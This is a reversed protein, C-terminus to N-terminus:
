GYVRKGLTGSRGSRCRELFGSPTTSLLALIADVSRKKTTQAPGGRGHAARGLPRASRRRLLGKIPDPGLPASPVFPCFRRSLAGHVNGPPRGVSVPEGGAASRPGPTQSAVPAAGRRELSSLIDLVVPSFLLLGVVLPRAGFSYWLTYNRPRTSNKNINRRRVQCGATRAGITLRNASCCIHCLRM